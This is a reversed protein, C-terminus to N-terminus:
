LKQLKISQSGFQRNVTSRSWLTTSWIMEEFNDKVRDKKCSPISSASFGCILRDTFQPGYVQDSSHDFARPLNAACAARPRKLPGGCLISGLALSVPYLGLVPLCGIKSNCGIQCFIDTLSRGSTRNRNQSHFRLTIPPHNCYSFQSAKKMQRRSSVNESGLRFHGNQRDAFNPM